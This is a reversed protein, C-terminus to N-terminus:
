TWGLAPDGDKLKVIAKDGSVTYKKEQLSGNYYWLHTGKKPLTVTYDGFKDQVEENNSRKKFTFKVVWNIEKEKDLDKPHKPTEINKFDVKYEKDLNDPLDFDIQDDRDKNLYQKAM